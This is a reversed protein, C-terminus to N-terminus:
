SYHLDYSWPIPPHLTLVGSVCPTFSLGEPTPTFPLTVYMLTARGGVSDRHKMPSGPSPGVPTELRDVRSRFLPVGDVCCGGEGM